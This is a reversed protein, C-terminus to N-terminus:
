KTTFALERGTEIVVAGNSSTQVVPSDGGIALGGSTTFTFTSHVTTGNGGLALGGSTTYRYNAAAVTQDGGLALGGSTTLHYAASVITASGGLALGGSTTWNYATAATTQDGGLALGGDSSQFYSTNIVASHNTIVPGIQGADGTSLSSYFIIAANQISTALTGTGVAFAEAATLTVNWVTLEAMSGDDFGSAGDSYALATVTPAVNPPNTGTATSNLIGNLYVSLTTGDWTVCFHLWTNAPPTGVIQARCAGGAGQLHVFSQFVAANPHDWTMGIDQTSGGGADLGMPNTTGGSNNPVHTAKYWFSYSYSGVPISITAATALYHAIGDGTASM